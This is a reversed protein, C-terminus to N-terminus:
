EFDDRVYRKALREENVRKFEKLGDPNLSAITMERKGLAGPARAVHWGAWAMAGRARSAACYTTLMANPNSYKKLRM